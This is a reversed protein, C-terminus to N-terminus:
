DHQKGEMLDVYRMRGLKKQRQKEHEPQMLELFNLGTKEALPQPYDEEGLKQDRSRQLELPVANPYQKSEHWVELHALNIPDYRITIQQQALEIAVEYKNGQFSICGTKDVKRTAEWLFASQLDAITPYHLPHEDKEFRERPTQKTEGHRREHYMTDVWIQFYRNLDDLTQIKGSEILDYAEPKFSTDVFRFYRELKGRGEPRGPTSHTLTIGLKACALRLVDARYISGNDVYIKEPQGHRLIAKQLCDELQPGREEWHFEGHVILRSYDDLFAFLKALRRRNPDKPDPLYLTHQVDGQWCANRHPAEFRRYQRGPQKQLVARTVNRKRLQKSLTSESVGGPEALGALELIRIVQQVSREPRETKLEIAKELVEESIARPSSPTRGAPKLAEFGDKRYNQIYRELTRISVKQLEGQPNRHFQSATTRLYQALEGPQLERSVASSILGSLPHPASANIKKWLEVTLLYAVQETNYKRFYQNPRSLPDLSLLTRALWKSVEENRGRWEKKWRKLTQRAIGGTTPSQFM